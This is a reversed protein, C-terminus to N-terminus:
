TSPVSQRRVVPSSQPATQTNNRVTVVTKGRVGHFVPRNFRHLKETHRTAFFSKPHIVNDVHQTARFILFDETRAGM